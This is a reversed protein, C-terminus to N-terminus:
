LQSPANSADPDASQVTLSQSTADLVFARFISPVYTPHSGQLFSSQDRFCKQARAWSIGFDGGDALMPIPSATNYKVRYLVHISPFDLWDQPRMLHLLLHLPSVSCRIRSRSLCQETGPQNTLPEPVILQQKSRNKKRFVAPSSSYYNWQLLLSASRRTCTNVQVLLVLFFPVLFICWYCAKSLAEVIALLVSTWSLRPRLSHFLSCTEM